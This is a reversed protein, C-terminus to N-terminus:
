ELLVGLRGHENCFVRRVRQWRLDIGWLFRQAIPLAAAMDVELFSPFHHHGMLIKRQRVVV